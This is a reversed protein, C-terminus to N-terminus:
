PRWNYLQAVENTTLARNFILVDDIYGTFTFISSSNDVASSRAGINVNPANVLAFTYSASAALASNTYIAVSGSNNRVCVIHRWVSAPVTANAWPEGNFYLAVGSAASGVLLGYQTSSASNNNRSLVWGQSTSQPLIWTAITVEGTVNLQAADPVTIRATGGFGLAGGLVGTRDVVNSPSNVLTGHNAYTSSDIANGNLKYWAVPNLSAPTWASSQATVWQVLPTADFAWAPAALILASIIARSIKM